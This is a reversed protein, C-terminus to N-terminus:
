WDDESLPEALHDNGVQKFADYGLFIAGGGNSTVDIILKTKGSKQCQNLFTTIVQSFKQDQQQEGASFASISLVATDDDLFYGAIEGSELEVVSNPYAVRLPSGAARPVVRPRPPTMPVDRKRHRSNSPLQGSCLVSYFSEGDVINEFSDDFAATNEYETTTGNAFGLRTTPGTYQGTTAFFNGLRGGTEAAMTHFVENYLADPDQNLGTYSFKELWEAAPTGDITRIASPMGGGRTSALIDGLILCMLWM